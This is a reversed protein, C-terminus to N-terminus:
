LAALLQWVRLRKEKAAHHLKAATKFMVILNHYTAPAYERLHLLDEHDVHGRHSIDALLLAVQELKELDRQEMPSPKGSPLIGTMIMDRAANFFTIAPNTM